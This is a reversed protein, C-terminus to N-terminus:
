RAFPTAGSKGGKETTNSTSVDSEGSLGIERTTRRTIKEGMAVETITYREKAVTVTQGGRGGQGPM